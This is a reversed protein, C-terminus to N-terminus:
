ARLRRDALVQAYQHRQGFAAGILLLAPADDSLWDQAGHQALAGLNLHLHRERPTSVAEIVCVPLDAPKGQDLLQRAIHAAHRRGMYVALTDAQPLKAADAEDAQALTCFAVSRSHGRLTLSQGLSASAALASTVGPVVEFPVGAEALAGIEEDARGFMMPDGGKLRVVVAHHRAAHVLRKNIFAQSSSHKGCRKGVAVLTAQPCWNLMAPDVLADHFVVDATELLRQGRVTILDAAGPGAGILYVKGLPHQHTM